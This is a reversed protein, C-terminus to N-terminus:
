EVEEWSILDYTNGVPFGPPPYYRLNGDYVHNTNVFGSVVPNGYKWGGGNYSIQSGFFTLSNRINEVYGDNYRPRYIKEFQSLAAADVEMDNPVDLPVIINGQSILGLVDDSAKESYLINGNIYIEQYTSPLVPFRGAGLTVRGNVEGDVWINDEVFVAGNDPIVHNQVFVESRIDYCLLDWYCQRRRGRGECYWTNAAYCERATVRYLDFTGDSLFVIHWGEDGSSYLHIGDDDALDRIAALDATIGFFDKEPVPFEWFEEPGGSGSVSQASQIQAHATGDFNIWGNAHVKGFVETTPSFSMNSDEVFTYDTLAPFGLRVQVTRQINPAWISWGTSRVTVITSGSLPNDIELSYQGMVNGDKDLFDHVYPGPQGTGDTYDDPNHALHWRYYNAGAEAINFAVDRNHKRSSARHEFLAYSSIGSIIIVSAISGFIMIFLLSSGKKNLTFV